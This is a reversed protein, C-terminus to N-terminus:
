CWSRLQAFVLQQVSVVDYQRVLRDNTEEIWLEIQRKLMAELEALDDIAFVEKLQDLMAPTAQVSLFASVYDPAARRVERLRESEGDDYIQSRWIEVKVEVMEELQSRMANSFLLDNTAQQLATRVDNLLEHEQEQTLTFDYPLLQTRVYAELVEYRALREPTPADGPKWFRRFFQRRSLSM